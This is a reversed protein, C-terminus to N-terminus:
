EEPGEYANVSYTDSNRRGEDGDSESYSYEDIEAAAEDLASLRLREDVSDVLAKSSGGGATARTSTLSSEGGSLSAAAATADPAFGGGWPLVNSSFVAGATSTSTPAARAAMRRAADEQLAAASSAAALRADVSGNAAAGAVRESAGGPTYEDAHLLETMDAADYEDTTYEDALAADVQSSDRNLASAVTAGVSGRHTKGVSPLLPGIDEDKLLSERRQIAAQLMRVLAESRLVEDDGAFEADIPLSLGDGAFGDMAALVAANPTQTAAHKYPVDKDILHGTRFDVCGVLFRCDIEELAPLGKFDTTAVIERIRRGSGRERELCSM